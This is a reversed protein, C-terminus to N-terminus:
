EGEKAERAAAEARATLLARALRARAQRKTAPGKPKKRGRPWPKMSIANSKM